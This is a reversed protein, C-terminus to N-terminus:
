KGENVHIRIRYQPESGNPESEVGVVSPWENPMLDRLGRHVINLFTKNNVLLENGGTVISM